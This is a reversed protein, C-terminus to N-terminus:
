SKSTRFSRRSTVREASIGNADNETCVDMLVVDVDHARVAAAALDANGISCVLHMEPHADLAASLSERLIVQDEVILIRIM